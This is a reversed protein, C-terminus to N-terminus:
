TLLDRHLRELKTGLRGVGSSTASLLCETTRSTLPHLEYTLVTRGTRFSIVSCSVLELCEYTRSALNFTAGVSLPTRSVSEIQYGCLHWAHPNALIEFVEDAPRLFVLA